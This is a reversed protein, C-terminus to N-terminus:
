TINRQNIFVVKADGNEDLDCDAGEAVILRRYRNTVEHKEFFNILGTILFGDVNQPLQFTGIISDHKEDFLYLNIKM